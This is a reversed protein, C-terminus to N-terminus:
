LQMNILVAHANHDTEHFYDYTHLVKEFVRSNTSMSKGAQVFTNYLHGVEFSVWVNTTRVTTAFPYFGSPSVAHFMLAFFGLWAFHKLIQQGFTSGTIPITQGAKDFKPRLIFGVSVVYDWLSHTNAQSLDGHIAELCRLTVTMPLSACGLRFGINRIDLWEILQFPFWFAIPIVFGYGLLLGQSSEDTSSKTKPRIVGYYM